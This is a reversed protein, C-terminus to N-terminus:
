PGQIKFDILILFTFLAIVVIGIGMVGFGLLKAIKTIM